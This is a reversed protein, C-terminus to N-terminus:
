LVLKEGPDIMGLGIAVEDLFRGWLKENWISADGGEWDKCEELTAWGLAVFFHNWHDPGMLRYAAAALQQPAMPCPCDRRLRAVIEAVTSYKAKM